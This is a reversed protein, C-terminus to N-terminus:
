KKKYIATFTNSLNGNTGRIADEINEVVVLDFGHSNMLATLSQRNFHHIHEGPRLHKWSQFEPSGPSWHCEPATVVIYGTMLESLFDLSEFHELSDFFTIIEWTSDTMSNARGIGDPLDVGSIDHGCPLWGAEKCVKLFSGDGYGVDLIYPQGDVPIHAAIFGARLYAMGLTKIGYNTYRSTVYDQNYIQSILPPSQHIVGFQDVQYQYNMLSLM